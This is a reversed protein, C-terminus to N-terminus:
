YRAPFFVTAANKTPLTIRSDFPCAFGASNFSNTTSFSSATHRSPILLHVMRQAVRIHGSSRRHTPPHTRYSSEQRRLLCRYRLSRRLGRARLRGARRRPLHRRLLTRRLLRRRLLRGRLLRRRLLNRRLRRRLLTTPPPIRRGRASLNRPLHPLHLRPRQPAPAAPLLHRVRLLRNRDSQALSPPRPLLNRRIRVPRLLLGRQM